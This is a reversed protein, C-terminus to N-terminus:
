VFRGVDINPALQDEPPACTVVPSRFTGKIRWELASSHSVDMAAAILFPSYNM